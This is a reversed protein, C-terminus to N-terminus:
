KSVMHAEVWQYFRATMKAIERAEVEFVNRREYQVMNKKAIIRKLTTAKDCAEALTLSKVLECVDFHDQSVSRVGKEFVCVADAASIVCQIALTASANFHRHELASIMELYSEKAKKFYDQAASKDEQRIKVERPAM